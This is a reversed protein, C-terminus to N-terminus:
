KKSKPYLTAEIAFQKKLMEITHTELTQASFPAKPLLITKKILNSGQQQEAILTMKEFKLLVFHNHNAFLRIRNLHYLWTVPFPHSGFRDKLEQFLEELEEFSGVEGLRHYMEMRLSFEPIYREPLYAEYPFELKVEQFSLPKEQSIADVAKKLLKCYLHFGISSVEGSQEKGLLNGAGRIELDRMAVKLGGGFGQAEALAQLRKQAIEPLKKGKPILFYAYAIRNWRGVRGKLQYLDALGHQDARDILITNANPIDVGNEVITTAFLLQILGQKFQHFIQDIEDVDMQGHVIGIRISPVLSHIDRAVQDITEVRNHIFFAQGGRSLERLLANQILSEEKEAIITKVPLRDQPPTNIISMDRAHVLSMYLTRPIPTASLTLCDIGEKMKKLHEKAKVGFRQEEDIILLGLDHFHLDSSLLRHTGVLIDIEHHAIKKLVEKTEKATQFRSIIGVTVPYPAMREKFNEYHQMALVTTPVLVAVQKKGDAVAKFAARMAVETKGYGVDGCILRDMAKNSTMDEKVQAIALLQDDTPTYIFEEEFRRMLSSDQEFSFGGKAKRKAYLQLLEHAYGVIEKQARLRTTQWRKSGLLSLSPPEEKTGIYRSILHAQSIPVFLKSNEAYEILLFETEKGLHDKQKEVGLYKGIGSHFHVVFDGPTLQHYYSTTAHSSARWKQRRVFAKKTLDIYSLYLTKEKKLFFSSTLSGKSFQPHCPKQGLHQFVSEVESEVAAVILTQVEPNEILPEIPEIKEYSHEIRTALFSQFLWEFQIQDKVKEISSLKEIPQETQFIQSYNKTKSFLEKFSLSYISSSSIAKQLTVFNEEIQFLDDWFIILEKGFYDLISSSKKATQLLKLEDVPTLLFELVKGTTRQSVPDFSRIEEVEDENWELRFPTPSSLPFLDIIGGRLAFEGKETVVAVQKFGLKTLHFAIQDFPFHAGKKLLTLHPLLEEPAMIKQLLAALPILVVKKEKKELAKLTEFRKGLLDPSPPIGESAFTEWAPFELCEEKLFYSLDTFLRDERVGGTIILISRDQAEFLKQIFHAKPAEWLGELLYSGQESLDLM